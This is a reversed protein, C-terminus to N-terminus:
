AALSRASRTATAAAPRFATIASMCPGSKGEYHGAKRFHERDDHHHHKQLLWARACPRRTPSRRAQAWWHALALPVTLKM